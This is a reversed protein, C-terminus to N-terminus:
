PCAKMHLLLMRLAIYSTKLAHSYNFTALHSLELKRLNRHAEYQSIIFKPGRM